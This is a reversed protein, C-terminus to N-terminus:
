KEAKGAIWALTLVPVGIFYAFAFLCSFIEMSSGSDEYVGTPAIHAYYAFTYVSTTWFVLGIFVKKIVTM